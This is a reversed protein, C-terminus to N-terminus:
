SAEALRGFVFQRLPVMVAYFYEYLAVDIANLRRLIRILDSTLEIRNDSEDPTAREHSSHAQEAGMLRTVLRFSLPYMEVIGVFAFRDVIFQICDDITADESPRLFQFMRNRAWSSHFYSEFTPFEKIFERHHPHLATRQYRFDSVVRKIPDRLMTMLALEQWRDVRAILTAMPVHGSAFQLPTRAFEENFGAVADGIKQNYPVDRHDNDIHINYSPARCRIIDRRFSSGATKPIHTFFWCQQRDQNESVYQDYNQQIFGRLSM